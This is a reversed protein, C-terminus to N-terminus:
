RTLADVLEAFTSVYLDVDDDTMRISLTWEEERGPTAFIGRNMNWLWALAMLQEDQARKFTEYDVLKTDSFAVVGKSRIGVPYAAIHYADIVRQSEDLIRRNIHELHGYADPTMVDLLNARAAAMVLPNGNYTGVMCVRGSLVPEMMEHTAGIAASPLGGGLAKALCIIDPEIGFYECAGGAAITLGTKVEDVIWVIGHRRTIERVRDLYGPEPLIVGCNMLAAEMILCAPARGEAELRVIRRELADADNFPVAVTMATVSPPIGAGYAVSPYDERDAMHDESLGISVMVYDHHGHYSGFIKLITDRGTIARALRISDMTAESGSNLFRWQPLGFRRELEEAVVIADETPAAFHTGLAMRRSVAETIKPHAHGQVMSGFANHVDLYRRGDVDWVYQGDGHTLYIPWPKRAQYSSPVGGALTRKARAFLAASGSTGQDLRRSEEEILRAVREPDFAVTSGEPPEMRAPIPAVATRAAEIPIDEPAGHPAPGPTTAGQPAGADSPESPKSPHLIAM